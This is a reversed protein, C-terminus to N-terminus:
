LLGPTKEKNLNMNTNPEMLRRKWDDRSSKEALKLHSAAKETLLLLLHTAHSRASSKLRSCLGGPSLWDQNRLPILCFSGIIPYSSPFLHIHSTSLPHIIILSYVTPPKQIRQPFHQRSPETHSITLLIGNIKKEGIGRKYKLWRSHPAVPITDTFMLCHLVNQHCVHSLTAWSAWQM